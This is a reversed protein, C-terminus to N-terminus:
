KSQRSFTRTFLLAMKAFIGRRWFPKRKCEIIYSPLERGVTVTCEFDDGLAQGELKVAELRKALADKDTDWITTKCYFVKGHNELKHRNEGMVAQVCSQTALIIAAAIVICNLKKM